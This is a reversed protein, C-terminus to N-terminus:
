VGWSAKRALCPQGATRRVCFLQEHRPPFHHPDYNCRYSYSNSYSKTVTVINRKLKKWVEKAKDGYILRIWSVLGLGVTSARPDQIIIRISPNDLLDKFSAPPNKLKKSNYIFSIYGYDYPLFYPDSWTIPLNLHDFRVNHPAFLDLERAKEALNNDLGIVLDAPSNKGELILRSLMVNSGGVPVFEVECNCISEFRKKFPHSSKRISSHLSKTTYIILKPLDAALAINALFLIGLFVFRLKM